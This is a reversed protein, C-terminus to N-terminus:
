TLNVIVGGNTSAVTSVLELTVTDDDGAFTVTQVGAPDITTVPDASLLLRPELREFRVSRQTPKHAPRRQLAERVWRVLSKLVHKGSSKDKNQKRVQTRMTMAMGM